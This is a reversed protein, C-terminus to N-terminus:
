LEPLQLRESLGDSQERAEMLPQGQDEETPELQM